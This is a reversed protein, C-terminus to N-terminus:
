IIRNEILTNIYALWQTSIDYIPSLLQRTIYDLPRISISPCKFSIFDIM